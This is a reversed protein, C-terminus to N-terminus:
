LSVPVCEVEIDNRKGCTTTDCGDHREHPKRHPCRDSAYCGNRRSCWYKGTYKELAKKRRINRIHRLLSIVGVSAAAAAALVCLVVIVIEMNM